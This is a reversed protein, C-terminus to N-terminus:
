SISAGACLANSRSSHMTTRLLTETTSSTGIHRLFPFPRTANGARVSARIRRRLGVGGPRGDLAGRAM